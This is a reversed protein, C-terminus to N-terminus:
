LRSNGVSRRPANGKRVNCILHSTQMNTAVHQGGDIVPIVHDLSASMPDPWTLTAEVPQTCIQCVWHDREYIQHPDINHAVDEATIGMERVRALYSSRASTARRRSLSLATRVPTWLPMPQAPSFVEAEWRYEDGSEDVDSIFERGRYIGDLATGTGAIPEHYPHEIFMGDVLLRPFGLRRPIGSNSYIFTVGIANSRPHWTFLTEEPAVEMGALWPAFCERVPQPVQPDLFALYVTQHGHREIVDGAIPYRDFEYPFVGPVTRMEHPESTRPKPFEANWVREAKVARAQEDKSVRYKFRRKLKGNCAPSCVCRAKQM